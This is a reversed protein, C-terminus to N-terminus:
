PTELPARLPHPRTRSQRTSVAGPTWGSKVIRTNASGDVALRLRTGVADGLWSSWLRHLRGRAQRRRHSFPIVPLPAGAAVGGGALVTRYTAPAVMVWAGPVDPLEIRSVTAVHLLSRDPAFVKQRARADAQRVDPVRSADTSAVDLTDAAGFM